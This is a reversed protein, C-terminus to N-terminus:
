SREGKTFFRSIFKEVEIELDDLNGTNQITWDSKSRKEEIDIQNKLAQEAEAASSGDREMLRAIQMERPSYVCVKLDVLKDLGKEFLLPVDYIVLDPKGLQEYKEKFANPLQAYITKELLTRSDLNTFAEERLSKFNIAGEEFVKPFHEEVFKIMSKKQYIAKVLRDANIIPFGKEALSDSVTSKGSAIGGTLGVIPVDLGHLRTKPDKIIFESKLRPNKM